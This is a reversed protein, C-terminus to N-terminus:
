RRIKRKRNRGIERYIIFPSIMMLGILAAMLYVLLTAFSSLDIGLGMEASSNIITSAIFALGMSMFLTMLVIVVTVTGM